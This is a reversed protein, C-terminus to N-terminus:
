SVEATVTKAEGWVGGRCQIDFANNQAPATFKYRITWTTFGDETVISEVNTSTSQYTSTKLKLTDANKFGIRIKTVDDTTVVTFIGYEGLEYSDKDAQASVLTYKEYGQPPEIIVEPEKYVLINFSAPDGYINKPLNQWESSGSVRYDIKWVQSDSLLTGAYNFVMPITWTRVGDADSVTVETTGKNYNSYKYY